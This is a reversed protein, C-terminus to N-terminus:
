LPIRKYCRRLRWFRAFIPSEEGRIRPSSIVSCDVASIVVRLSRSIKCDSSVTVSALSVSPRARTLTRANSFFYDPIDFIEIQLRAGLVRLFTNKSCYIFILITPMKKMIRYKTNEFRIYKLMKCLFDRQLPIIFSGVLM